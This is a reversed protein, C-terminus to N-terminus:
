DESYYDDRCVTDLFPLVNSIVVEVGSNIRCSQRDAVEEQSLDSEVLRTLNKLSTSTGVAEDIQEEKNQVPNRGGIKVKWLALELLSIAELREYTALKFCLLGIERQRSSSGEVTLDENLATSIDLKWQALGLWQLRQTIIAQVLSHIVIASDSTHNLCLYDIPTSGFKDRAHIIDVKYVQLLAQFLSLNPIQSLALIHFPTMGLSDVKTGASPDADMNQRLNEMAETLPYYSQYYCLRHVPLADFRHQLKGVLDYFNTAVHRLKLGEMFEADDEIQDVHQESPIVLNVLSECGSIDTAGLDIIELGEPLELSILRTCNAFLSGGIKVVSSPIRVHTLSTCGKFWNEGIAQLGEPLDISTLSKCHTFAYSKIVVHASAMKIRKLRSCGAFAAEGVVQLGESFEISDLSHCAGFACMQIEKLTSPLKNIYKLNTCNHFACTGIRELGESFEVEVLSEYNGFAFDHIEKVSPDVKVHTVNKRPLADKTDEKYIFVVYSEESDSNDSTM